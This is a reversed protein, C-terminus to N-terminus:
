VYLSAAFVIDRRIAASAAEFAGALRADGVVRAASALQALLEDLRRIARILSGEFLDTRDVTKPPPFPTFLTHTRTSLAHSFPCPILSCAFKLGGWGDMWKGRVQQFTAGRAWAYVADMLTPAFAAVYDDPSAADPIAAEVQATAIRRAAAQLDALPAALASSLEVAATSKEVPVLCSALAALRAPDLGGFVGNFMLESALLEDAADVECAARGKLTLVAALSPRQRPQVGEERVGAATDEELHGLARLVGLRRRAEARYLDLQSDRMAATLSAARSALSAAHAAAATLAPDALATAFGPDAGAACAADAEVEKLRAGAAVVREDDVGADVIPDLLPIGTPITAYRAELHSLTALAAARAPPPRLDAPLGVRLAGAAEVMPLPLPVVALEASAAGGPGAPCPTSGAKISAPDCRLLVDVIFAAAPGPAPAAPSPPPRAAAAAGAPTAPPGAKSVRVVLGWGWDVSGDRVRVLRGPTLLAAVRHPALLADRLTRRLAAAELALPAAGAGAGAGAGARVRGAEAEVAALEAALLPQAAEHQYQRFSRAVVYEADRGSGEARRALNLLTYFSLRFSSQLPASGGKMMGAAAAATLGSDALLICVGRDDTGRRGARGSMQIYEGSTMFRTCEGDWKRPQHISMIISLFSFLSSSHSPIRSLSASLFPPRGTRWEEEGGGSDRVETFVVTKAPMNLGMAFTETAFLVKVLGEAFLLEVLEKLIPLLGSHHVGVGAKLLPRLATVARLGADEASLCAIAQDFVVDVAAAEEPTNFSPPPDPPLPASRGPQTPRPAGGRRAVLAAAYAECNRRSFSFVIAPALGRDAILRVIRAVNPAVEAAAGPRGPALARPPATQPPTAAGGKPPSAERRRKKTGGQVPATEEDEGEEDGDTIGFAEARMKAWADARFGGVEDAVLYLGRGGLPYVYHQLPTPRTDTSVVHCPARRLRAVWGAFDSANSLTASLFVMRVGPPAFIITEEWVVGRERDQMYHVEDFVIWGLNQLGDSGRYLMSRLIETTMVTVPAAPALSVDGTLLGVEGFADSLERFKQNSLAKLPSTYAVTRGARLAAAIAYEAVATKGASTHAAVLVSEGREICACAAQQFPDLQFPFTRAPPGSYSPAALTGYTARDLGTSGDDYGAPTAVEHAM